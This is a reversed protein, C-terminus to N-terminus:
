MAFEPEEIELRNIVDRVGACAWAIRGAEAREGPSGVTGHLAVVGNNVDVRISGAALGGRRGLAARIGDRIDARADAPADIEILNIIGHVGPLPRLAQEAADRQFQWSVHGQLKVWGRDVTIQIREDPVIVNWRIADLAAQAITSDDAARSGLDIRLDNALARVGAVRNVAREAALKEAYSRVSGVLTVVGDHVMTGITSASVEPDWALEEVVDHQLMENTKM